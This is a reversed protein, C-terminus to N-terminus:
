TAIDRGTPDEVRQFSFCNLKIIVVIGTDGVFEPVNRLVLYISVLSVFLHLNDTLQSREM